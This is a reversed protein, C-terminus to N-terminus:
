GLRGARMEDLDGQWDVEGKLELIRRQEHHRLLERLAHDVLERRTGLGTAALGVEVLDQDLVINTRVTRNAM